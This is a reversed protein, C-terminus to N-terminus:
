HSWFVHIVKYDTEVFFVDSIELDWGMAEFDIYPYLNSPIDTTESTLQDAFDALSTYEGCYHDSLANRADEIDGGYHDILQAGLTGHEDIFEALEAIHEVGDYENVSAGEFGEYDHIAYEETDEVPSAKLMEGIAKYIGDIDQCADIWCGHLIGNNYAALCAVYIRIESQQQEM